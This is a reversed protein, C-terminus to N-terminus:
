QLKAYEAKAEKLIPIDPDAGKWLALFDQYSTRAAAVDNTLAHARALGLHALPVLQSNQMVGRQNLIKQFEGAAEGGQGLSLYALGRVYAPFLRGGLEYPRTTQLFEIAKAAAGRSLEIEAEITPLWCGQIMTDLPFDKSLKDGLKQASASDGVMALALAANMKVDRGSAFALAASVMKRAQAANGFAAEDGALDLEANAASENADNHKASDGAFRM